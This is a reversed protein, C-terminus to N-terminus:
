VVILAVQAIHRQYQILLEAMAQLMAKGKSTPIGHFRVNNQVWQCRM